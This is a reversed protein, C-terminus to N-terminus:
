SWTETQYRKYKELNAVYNEAEDSTMDGKSKLVDLVAERVGVPMQKANRYLVNM